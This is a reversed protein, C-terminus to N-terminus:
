DRALKIVFKEILYYLRRPMKTLDLSLDTASQSLYAPIGKTNSHQLEYEAIVLVIAKHTKQDAANLKKSLAAISSKSPPKTPLDDLNFTYYLGFKKRM